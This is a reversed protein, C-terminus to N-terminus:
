GLLPGMGSRGPRVLVVDEPGSTVRVQGTTRRLSGVSVLRIAAHVDVGPRNLHVSIVDQPSGDAAADAAVYVNSTGDPNEKIFAIGRDTPTRTTM